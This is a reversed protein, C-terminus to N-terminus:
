HEQHLAFRTRVPQSDGGAAVPASVAPASSRSGWRNARDCLAHPLRWFSGPRQSWPFRSRSATHVHGAGEAGFGWRERDPASPTAAAGAPLMLGSCHFSLLMLFVIGTSTSSPCLLAATSTTCLRPRVPRSISTEASVNPAR